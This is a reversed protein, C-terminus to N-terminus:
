KGLLSNSAIPYFQLRYRAKRVKFPETSMPRHSKEGNRVDVCWLFSGHHDVKSGNRIVSERAPSKVVRTMVVSAM